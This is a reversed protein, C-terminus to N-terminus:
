RYRSPDSSGVEHFDHIGRPPGLFERIMHRLMENTLHESAESMSNM